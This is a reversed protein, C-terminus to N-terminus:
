SLNLTAQLASCRSWPTRCRRACWSRARRDGRGPEGPGPHLRRAM